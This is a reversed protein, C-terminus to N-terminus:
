RVAQKLTNRSKSWLYGYKQLYNKLKQSQTTVPVTTLCKISISILVIFLKMIYPLHGVWLFINHISQTQTFITIIGRQTSHNRSVVITQRWFWRLLNRPCLKRNMSVFRVRKGQKTRMESQNVIYTQQLKNYLKCLWFRCVGFRQGTSDRDFFAYFTAAMKTKYFNNLCYSTGLAISWSFKEHKKNVSM